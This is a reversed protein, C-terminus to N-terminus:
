EYKQAFTELIRGLVELLHEPCGWFNGLLKELFGGLSEWSVGFVGWSAGLVGGLGM